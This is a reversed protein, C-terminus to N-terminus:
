GRFAAGWNARVTFEPALDIAGGTTVRARAIRL